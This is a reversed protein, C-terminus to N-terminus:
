QNAINKVDSESSILNWFTNPANNCGQRIADLGVISLEDLVGVRDLNQGAFQMGCLLAEAVSRCFPEPIVPSYYFYKYKNYLSPMEEYKTTGIYEVNPITTALHNYIRSGAWGSIVFSIDPRSLAFEFFESTGKLDHMFGAYLVKEERQNKKDFFLGKDIPDYIVASDSLDLQYNKQFLNKHFSTLFISKKCSRFLKRRTEIDLYRNMDHEVRFHCEHECIQDIIKENQSYHAELNSTILIDFDTLRKGSDFFDRAKDFTLNFIDFGSQVGKKILIDDSRQAGGPSHTLNFDSLWIVTKAM